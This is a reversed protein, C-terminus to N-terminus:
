RKAVSEFGPMDLTTNNIKFYFTEFFSLFMSELETWACFM